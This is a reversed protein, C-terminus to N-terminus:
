HDTCHFVTLCLHNRLLPEGVCLLDNNNDDPSKKVEEKMRKHSYTSFIIGAFILEHRKFVTM